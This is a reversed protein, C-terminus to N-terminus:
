CVSCCMKPPPYDWFITLVPVRDLCVQSTTHQLQIRGHAAENWLSCESKARWSHISGGCTPASKGERARNYSAHELFSPAVHWVGLFALISCNGRCCKSSLWNRVTTNSNRVLPTWLLRGAHTLSSIDFMVSVIPVIIWSLLLLRFVRTPFARIGMTCKQVIHSKLFLRQWMLIYERTNTSEMWPSCM